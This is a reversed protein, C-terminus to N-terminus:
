IGIVPLTIRYDKGCIPVCVKARRQRLNVSIISDCYDRLVGDMIMLDGEATKYVKSPAIPKGNNWLWQIYQEEHEALEAPETGNKLFGVVGDTKCIDYYQVHNLPHKYPYELFLYGAFVPETRETWKGDKRISMTRQPCRIFYGRKRLAAAVELDSGPKVQFVYMM